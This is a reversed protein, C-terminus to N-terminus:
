RNRNKEYWQRFSQKPAPPLERQRGWLNFRNYALWRPTVRLAFRGVRGVTRYLWPRSFLAGAIRMMGRKSSEIAGRAALMARAALLQNHLDIKVPCVDTCSGCLSCAFPLTHNREPERATNIISGIPGAVTVGYSHGGSRRYVPCTNLCAGCRICHLSRRFDDSALLKTRGNDVLVIHLEGGPRPGHFHSSYGTIPQGTASRGLLRLFV